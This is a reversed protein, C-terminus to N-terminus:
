GLMTVVKAILRERMSNLREQKCQTEVAENKAAENENKESM